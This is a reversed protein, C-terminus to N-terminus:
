LVCSCGGFLRVNTDREVTIEGLFGNYGTGPRWKIEGDGDVVSFVGVGTPSTLSGCELIWTVVSNPELGPPFVEHALVESSSDPTMSNKGITWTHSAITTDSELYLTKVKPNDDSVIYWTRQGPTVTKTNLLATLKATNFSPDMERCRQVLAEMVKVHDPQPLPFLCKFVTPPIYENGLLVTATGTGCTPVPIQKVQTETMYGYDSEPPLTPLGNLTWHAENDPFKLRIYGHPIRMEYRFMPNAKVYAIATQNASAGGSTISEVSFTNPVAKPWGALPIATQTNADFHTKSELRPRENYKFPVFWYNRGNVSVPQYGPLCQSGDKASVPNLSALSVSSPMQDSTITVNSEQGREMLATKWFGGHKAKDTVADGLMRVSNGLSMEDFFSYLNDPDNLKDSLRDSINEAAQYLNSNHNSTDGNSLGKNNIEQSNIGVWLAKGWVADINTLGFKGSSDSVDSYYDEDGGNSPVTVFLSKKGVNLAGADTANRTERSGGFYLSITFFAVVLLVLAFALAAALGLAAGHRKRKKRAMM